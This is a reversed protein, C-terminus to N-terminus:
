FASELVDPMTLPLPACVAAVDLFVVIDSVVFM